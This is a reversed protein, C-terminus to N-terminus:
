RRRSEAVSEYAKLLPELAEPGWFRRAVDRAESDPWGTRRARDLQERIARAVAEATAPVRLAPGGSAPWGESPDVGESAVVPIGSALAEAMAMGFNERHSVLALVQARRYASRLADAELMGTLLLEVGCEAARMKLDGGIGESDPGVLVLPVDKVGGMADVLLDLRKLWSLRGVYLVVQRGRVAPFAAEFSEAPPLEKWSDIDIVNGAVVTDRFTWGSELAKQREAEATFHVVVAGEVNAREWMWSWPLKKWRHRRLVVPDLAGRPSIVYPRGARRLDRAVFTAVPNWLSHIHTLDAWESLERVRRRLRPSRPLNGFWVAPAHDHYEIQVGPLCIEPKRRDTFAFDTTVLRVEHGRRALQACLAPVSKAPGGTEPALSPVVQLIKM